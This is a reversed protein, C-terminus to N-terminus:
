SGDALRDALDALAGVRVNLGSAIKRVTSWTPNANANEVRVLATVTLGAQHALDEQTLKREHRLRRIAAGLEPHTDSPRAVDAVSV